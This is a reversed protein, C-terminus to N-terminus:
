RRRDEVDAETYDPRFPYGAAIDAPTATADGTTRTPRAPAAGRRPGPTRDAVLGDVQDRLQELPVLGAAELEAKTPRHDPNWRRFEPMDGLHGTDDLRRHAEAPSPGPRPGPRPPETVDHDYVHHDQGTNHDRIIRFPRRGHDTDAVPGPTRALQDALQAREHEFARWTDDASRAPAPPNPEENLVRDIRRLRQEADITDTRYREARAKERTWNHVAKDRETRMAELEHQLAHHSARRKGIEADRQELQERLRDREATLGDVEAELRRVDHDQRLRGVEAAFEAHGATPPNQWPFQPNGDAPVKTPNTLLDAPKPFERRYGHPNDSDALARGLRANERELRKVEAHQLAIQWDGANLAELIARRQRATLMTYSSVLDVAAALQRRAETREEDRNTATTEAPM